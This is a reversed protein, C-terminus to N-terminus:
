MNEFKFLYWNFCILKFTKKTFFFDFSNEMVSQVFDYVMLLHECIAHVIRVASMVNVSVGDHM